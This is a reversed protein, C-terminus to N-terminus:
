RRPPPSPQQVAVQKGLTRGRQVVDTLADVWAEDTLIKQPMVAIGKTAYRLRRVHDIELLRQGITQIHKYTMNFADGGSIVVVNDGAKILM